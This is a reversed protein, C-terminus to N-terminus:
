QNFQWYYTQEMNPNNAFAEDSVPFFGAGEKEEQESIFANFEHLRGLRVLDYVRHFEGILERRREAMIEEILITQDTRTFAPIEARRRVKNLNLMAEDVRNLRADAEAKLLLLGGYRFVPVTGDMRNYSRDKVKRFKAFMIQREGNQLPDEFIPRLESASGSFDISQFFEAVRKDSRDRQYDPFIELIRSKPIALSLDSRSTYPNTLYYTLIHGYYDSFEGFQNDYYMQFVMENSEGKDFLDRFGSIPALEFYNSEIIEQLKAAAGEYDKLWMYAHAQLALAAGRTGRSTSLKRTMGQYEWPLDTIAIEVEDVIMKMVDHLPARGLPEVNRAELNIPIDGWIRAAYFHSMARLFRTEALLEAKRNATFGETIEPVRELVLNCQEITRYFLRWNTMPELQTRAILRNEFGAQWDGDNNPTIWDGSRADGWFYYDGWAGNRTTSPTDDKTLGALGRRFISFAAAVAGEADSGNQWAQDETVTNIPLEELWDKCGSFVLMLCGLSMLIINSKM